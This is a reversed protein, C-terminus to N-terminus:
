LLPRPPVSPPVLKQQLHPLQPTRIIDPSAEYYGSAERRGEAALQPLRRLLIAGVAVAPLLTGVERHNKEPDTVMMQVVGHLVPQIRVDQAGPRPLITKSTCKQFSKGWRRVGYYVSHM